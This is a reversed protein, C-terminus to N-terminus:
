GQCVWPSFSDGAARWKAVANLANVLPDFINGAVVQGLIQFLGSAGSPNYAHTNGGSECEAINAATAEVAASGGAQVWVQEIQAYSLVSGYGGGSSGVPPPTSNSSPTTTGVPTATAAAKAAAAAAAKAAAAAAAAAAARARARARAARRLVIMREYSAAAKAHIAGPDGAQDHIGQVAAM